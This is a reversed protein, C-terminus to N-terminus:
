FSWGHRAAAERLGNWAARRSELSTAVGGERAMRPASLSTSAAVMTTPCAAGAVIPPTPYQPASRPRQMFDLVNALNNASADRAGLPALGWRAEVMKLISTHDYVEHAVYKDRAFPSVVLLPTRFGLRGDTNGAAVDIPSVAGIPPPVHDFFGGWEDYNIVLVTREWAPSNTVATYIQHMFHQGARVDAYPHDDNSTGQGEGAFKPDIFSLNPLTGAAADALFVDFPRAISQYKAGWLGIFALDSFYYRGTLGANALRDWITPLTSLVLTNSIRDTQAAHQYFRNPFTPGLIACFYRDATTWDEIARSFFDLDTRRYYGISYEDNDGSRLFGDCAGNNFQIRGGEFSHDPDPHGCGQFDPALKHTKLRNGDRDIYHLGGQKGDAGPVWGMMHDFSRNEMMVVIVHDFGADASAGVLQSSARPRILPAFVDTGRDVCGLALGASAAAVGTLFQRRSPSQTRADSAPGGTPTTDTQERSM